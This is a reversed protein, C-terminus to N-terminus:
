SSDVPIIVLKKDEYSQSGPIVTCHRKVSERHPSVKDVVALQRLAAAM